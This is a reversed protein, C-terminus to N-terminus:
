LPPGSSTDSAGLGRTHERFGAHRPLVDATDFWGIRDAFFLHFGPVVATPEDLSALTIDITQPQYDVCMALPSGCDACFWREGFSSSRRRRPTGATIELAELPVSAFAMVPAGSTRRCIGCHCYGADFPTARLRYRVAGCACGGGPDPNANM